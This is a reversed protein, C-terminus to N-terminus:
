TRMSSSLAEQRLESRLKGEGSHPQHPQNRHNHDPKHPRHEHHRGHGRHHPNSSNFKVFEWQSFNSIWTFNRWHRGPRSNRYDDTNIHSANLDWSDFKSFSINRWPRAHRGSGLWFPLHDANSINRWPREQRGRGHWFPLQSTNLDGFNFDSHNWHIWSTLNRWNRDPWQDTRNGHPRHPKESRHDHHKKGSASTTFALVVLSVALLKCLLM